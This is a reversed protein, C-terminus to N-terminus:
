PDDVSSLLPVANGTVKCIMHRPVWIHDRRDETPVSMNECKLTSALRRCTKREGLAGVLRKPFSEGLGIGSRSSVWPERASRWYGSCATMDVKSRKLM